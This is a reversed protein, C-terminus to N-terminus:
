YYRLISLLKLALMFLILSSSARATGCTDSLCLLFCCTCRCLRCVMQVTFAGYICGAAEALRM